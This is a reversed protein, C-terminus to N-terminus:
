TLLFLFAGGCFVCELESGWRRAILLVNLRMLMSQFQERVEHVQVPVHARKSCSLSDRM